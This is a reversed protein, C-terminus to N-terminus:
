GVIRRIGGAGRTVHRLAPRILWSFLRLAGSCELGVTLTLCSCRAGLPVIRWDSVMSRLGPVNSSVGALVIRSPEEYAVVREDIRAGHFWVSRLSGEGGGGEVLRVSRVGPYWVPWSLADTLVSFVSEPPAQVDFSHEARLPARAIWESTQVEIAFAM